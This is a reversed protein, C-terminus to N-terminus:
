ERTAPPEGIGLDSTPQAEGRRRHGLVERAGVRPQAHRITRCGDAQDALCLLSRVGPRRACRLLYELRPLYESSPLESDTHGAGVGRGREGSFQHIVLLPSSELLTLFYGYRPWSRRARAPPM